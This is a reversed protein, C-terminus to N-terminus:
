NSINVSNAEGFGILRDYRGGLERHYVLVKYNNETQWFNGSIDGENLNGKDDITVYKYNYFGQKLLLKTEYIGRDTNYQMKNEKTLAYNNYNGYVYVDKGFFEPSLLSFNVWAYDAEVRSDERDIVTVLFNGNIDPNFTYPRDKRIIDTFLHSHYLDKLDIFRVGTNAARLDKNEFFLYENGAWFATENTYRYILEKGLTYQPPIDKIATNLNNNQVITTQITQTPNIVNIRNPVIKLDVTQKEEINSVDRSRKISVGVSCLDEYVMFKRSFILDGYDDYIKLMYNGSVKFGRTQQNPITLRYNSYIQYTNFSNEYTRIRQDDIGILYENEFLVSPTWDFNFHEIKYYYDDENANLADFELKLHEGLKLVPLQSEQTDGRFNITKIYDPPHVEREVQAQISYCLLVILLYLINKKM